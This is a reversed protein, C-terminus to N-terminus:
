ICPLLKLHNSVMQELTYQEEILVSVDGPIKKEGKLVQQLLVKLQDVNKPSFLFGNAGTEIIEPNGGVRTTIVPVNAALSELISLSFCEMYTPQLLFSYNKLLVPLESSSGRFRIQQELRYEKVRNKLDLELPGEGFVDIQLLSKEESSLLHVAEILDGIGKTPRLHSAVVFKGMNVQKRKEYVSADIGNYIVGTKDKLKRGYDQLICRVTYRSVGVFYDIYRSYLRGRIKNKIQKKLSFGELPRPNHDVAIVYTSHGEKLQKFFPTCLALFHTVVVDFRAGRKLFNLFFSEVSEKERSFHLDFDEYFEFQQGNSFFWSPNYGQRILAKNYALFFRDMGGIRQPNLSYDCIVAISKTPNM